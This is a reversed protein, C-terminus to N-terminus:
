SDLLKVMSSLFMSHRKAYMISTVAGMSRGWLTIQTAAHDKTLLNVLQELDDHEKWGLTVYDGQSKGCGNFDFLCLGYGNEICFEQLFLGEIRNGSQSHCYVVCPCNLILTEYNAVKTNPRIPVFLSVCIQAGRGNIFTFDKRYSDFKTYCMLKPGMNDISYNMREPQILIKWANNPNVSSLNM